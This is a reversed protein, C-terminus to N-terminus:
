DWDWYSTFIEDVATTYAIDGGEAAERKQTLEELNYLWAITAIDPTVPSHTKGNEITADDYVDATDYGGHTAYAHVQEFYEARLLFNTGAVQSWQRAITYQDNGSSDHLQAVDNGGATAYAYVQEYGQMVRLFYDAGGSNWNYLRTMAPMALLTDNGPSDYLTATDAGGYRAYGHVYDFGVATTTRDVLRGLSTQRVNLEVTAQTPTGTFVDNKQGDHIYAIDGNTGPVTGNVAYVTVQDFAKARRFYTATLDNLDDSLIAQDKHYLLSDSAASDFIEDTDFGDYAYGHAYPFNFASLTFSAGSVAESM